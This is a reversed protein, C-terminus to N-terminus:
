QVPTRAGAGEAQPTIVSSFAQSLGRYFSIRKEAAPTIMYAGEAGILGSPIRGRHAIEMMDSWLDAPLGGGTVHAMPSDDDNGVWVGGVLEATYGIFWADRWDQSTGTKGAVTWNKIKARAGTGAPSQVVSALMANMDKAYNVQFVRQPNYGPRRYLSHGRTDSLELIMYPDLRKGGSQFTGYARTLEWLTVEQSGLALAPYPKLDSRIGFRRAIASVREIGVEQGLQAAITNISRTLAESLTMPGLYAGSYNKPSWKGIMLPEDVRVDYPTLGQELAAAYVFPKFSSGPQRRAQTVRNFESAQYDVGGIMALVAGTKDMIIAGVQTAKVGKGDKEMRAGLRQSVAKQIDTDISLTVVLDPPVTPLMANVRETASDLIYGLQPDNPAREILTIEEAYATDAQAATLFGGSVMEDLVYRQRERAGELNDRLALRSPAQPLGALLSAQAISLEQPPVGFYHISAASIGYLGSGFYAVRNLYLDLIESKSLRTELERALKVEQAKRKLTQKPSLVLNKIVQQTITSAGSVTEGARWNSWLARMIASNDAGNHEYFRKDEASIFAQVVYPPLEDVGVKRGYRPGRIAITKGDRDVFEIASDRGKSWLQETAPLDPMGAYLTRWIYLGYLGGITFIALLGLLFYRRIRKATLGARFARLRDGPTVKKSASSKAM